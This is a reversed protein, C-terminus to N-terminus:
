LAPLTESSGRMKARSKQKITSKVILFRFVRPIQPTNCGRLCSVALFGHFGM